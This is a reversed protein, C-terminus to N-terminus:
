ILNHMFRAPQVKAKGTGDQITVMPRGKLSLM